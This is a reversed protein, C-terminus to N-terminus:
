EHLPLPPCRHACPRAPKPGGERVQALRACGIRQRRRHIGVGVLAATAGAAALGAAPVLLRRRRASGSRRMHRLLRGRARGRAEESPEAIEFPLSRLLDLESMTPLRRLDTPTSTRDACGLAAVRSARACPESRSASPLASRRTPFTPGPLCCCPNGSAAPSPECRQPSSPRWRRPSTGAPKSSRAAHTPTSGAGSAGGTAGSFIRPLG